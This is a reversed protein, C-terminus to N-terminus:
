KVLARHNQNFYKYRSSTAAAEATARKSKERLLHMRRRRPMLKRNLERQM